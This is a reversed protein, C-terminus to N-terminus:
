LGWRRQTCERLVPHGAVGAQSVSANGPCSDKMSVRPCSWAVQFSNTVGGTCVAGLDVICTEERVIQDGNGFVM